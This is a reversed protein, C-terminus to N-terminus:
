QSGSALPSGDADGAVRSTCAGRMTSGIVIVFSDPYYARNAISRAQLVETSARAQHFGGGGEVIAGRKRSRDQGRVQASSRGRRIHVGGVKRPDFTQQNKACMITLAHTSAFREYPHSTSTSLGYTTRRSECVAIPHTLRERQPM